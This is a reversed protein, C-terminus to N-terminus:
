SAGTNSFGKLDIFYKSDSIFSATETRKRAINQIGPAPKGRCEASRRRSRDRDFSFIIMNIHIVEQEPVSITNRIAVSKIAFHVEPASSFSIRFNEPFTVLLSALITHITTENTRAKHADKMIHM